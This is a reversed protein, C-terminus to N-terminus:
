HGLLGDSTNLICLDASARGEQKAQEDNYTAKEPTNSLATLQINRCAPLRYYQNIELQWWTILPSHFVRTM